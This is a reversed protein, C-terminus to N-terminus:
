LSNIRRYSDIIDSINTPIRLQTGASLHLSSFDVSDPNASSIIWYLTQDKYFQESLLDLRDGWDTIVYIDDERLPTEPYIAADKMPIGNSGTVNRIDSYRNM